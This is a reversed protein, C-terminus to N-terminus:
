QDLQRAYDAADFHGLSNSILGDSGIIWEEYGSIRVKRGTGGPGTNAGKLTWHYHFRDGVRDLRDMEVVMDPFATMFSRVAETIAARGLNPEGDNIKLSGNEAFYSAVKAPDQSCWAETYHMAFQLM